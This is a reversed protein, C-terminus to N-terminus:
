IEEDPQVSEEDEQDQILEGFDLGCAACFNLGSKMTADCLPCTTILRAGCSACLEADTSNLSGCWHCHGDPASLSEHSAGCQDCFRM